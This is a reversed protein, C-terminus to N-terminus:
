EGNVAFPSIKVADVIAEWQKENEVDVFILLELNGIEVNFAHSGKHTRGNGIRALHLADEVSVDFVNLKTDVDAQCKRKAKM